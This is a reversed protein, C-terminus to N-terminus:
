QMVIRFLLLETEIVQEPTFLNYFSGRNYNEILKLEKDVHFKTIADCCKKRMKRFKSM